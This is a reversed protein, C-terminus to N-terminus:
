ASSSSQVLTLPVKILSNISSEAAALELKEAHLLGLLAQWPSTHEIHATLIYFQCTCQCETQVSQIGAAFSM